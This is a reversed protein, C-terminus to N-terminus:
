SIMVFNIKIYFSKAKSVNLSNLAQMADVLIESGEDEMMMMMEEEM